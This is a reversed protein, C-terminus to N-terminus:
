GGFINQLSKARTPTQPASKYKPAVPRIKLGLEPAEKM